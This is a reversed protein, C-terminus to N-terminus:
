SRLQLEAVKVAGGEPPLATIWLLVHRYPRGGADLRIGQTRKVGAREGLKTGGDLTPPATARDSGYVAAAFGPTTTRVTLRAPVTGAKADVYVGVGAKNLAEYDETSWATSVDGDITLPVEVAHESGDGLPDFAGGPQLDVVQGTAAGAATGASSAGTAEPITTASPAAARPPKTATTAPDDDGASSVVSGLVVGVVACVLV